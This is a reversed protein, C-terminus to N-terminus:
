QWPCAWVNSLAEDVCVTINYAYGSKLWHSLWCQSCTKFMFSIVSFVGWLYKDDSLKRYGYPLHWLLSFEWCITLVCLPRARQLFCNLSILISTEVFSILPIFLSFFFIFFSSAISNFHLSFIWGQKLNSSFVYWLLLHSIVFREDSVHSKMRM